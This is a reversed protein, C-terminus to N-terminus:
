NWSFDYYYIYKMWIYSVTLECVFFVLSIWIYHTHWVYYICDIGDSKRFHWSSRSKDLEADFETYAHVWVRVWACVCCVCVCVCVNYIFLKQSRCYMSRNSFLYIWLAVVACKRPVQPITCYVKLWIFVHIRVVSCRSMNTGYLVFVYLHIIVHIYIYVCV